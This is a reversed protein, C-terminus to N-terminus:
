RRRAALAAVLAVLVIVLAPGPADKSGSEPEEAPPAEGGANVFTWTVTRELQNGCNEGDLCHSYTRFTVAVSEWPGSPPTFTVKRTESTQGAPVDYIQAKLGNILANPDSITRDEFMIMTRANAQIDLQLDFSYPENGPVQFTQDGDPQMTHGPRYAVMTAPTEVFATEPASVQGTPETVEGTYTVSANLIAPVLGPADPSPTLEMPVDQTISGDVGPVCAAPDVEMSQPSATLWEPLDQFEVTVTGGATRLALDCGVDVTIPVMTPADHAIEGGAFATTASVDAQVPLAWALTIGALLLIRNRM